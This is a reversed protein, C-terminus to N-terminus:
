RARRARAIAFDTGIATKRRKESIQISGRLAVSAVTLKERIKAM